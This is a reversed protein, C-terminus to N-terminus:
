APISVGVFSVGPLSLPLKAPADDAAKRSHDWLRCYFPSIRGLSSLTRDGQLIEIESMPALGVIQPLAHTAPAFVRHVSRPGGILTAGYIRVAGTKVWLDYQGIMTISKGTTVQFILSSDTGHRASANDPKWTSLEINKPFKALETTPMSANEEDTGSNYYVDGLPNGERLFLPDDHDSLDAESGSEDESTNEDYTVQSRAQTAAFASM